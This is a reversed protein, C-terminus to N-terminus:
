KHAFIVHQENPQSTTSIHVQDRSTRMTLLTHPYRDVRKLPGIMHPLPCAAECRPSCRCIESSVESPFYRGSNMAGRRRQGEYCFSGAVGKGMGGGRLASKIMNVKIFKLDVKFEALLVSLLQGRRLKRDQQVEALTEGLRSRPTRVVGCSRDVERLLRDLEIRRHTWKTEQETEHNTSKRRGPRSAKECPPKQLDQRPPKM